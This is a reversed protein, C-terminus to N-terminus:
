KLRIAIFKRNEYVRYSGPHHGAVIMLPRPRDMTADANSKFKLVEHAGIDMVIFSDNAGFGFGYAGAHLTKRGITLATETLLYGQYKQQLGTAYWSTDVLGALVLAGDALRLGYTNRLQVTATQGRCFAPHPMLPSIDQPSVMPPPIRRVQLECPIRKMEDTFNSIGEDRLNAAELGAECVCAVSGRTHM